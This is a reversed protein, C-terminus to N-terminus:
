ASQRSQSSRQTGGLSWRETPSPPGNLHGKSPGFVEATRIGRGGEPAIVGAGGSEPCSLGPEWARPEPLWSRQWGTVHMAAPLRPPGPQHHQVRGHLRQGENLEIGYEPQAPGDGARDAFDDGAAERHRGSFALVGWSFHKITGTNEKNGPIRGNSLGRFRARGSTM